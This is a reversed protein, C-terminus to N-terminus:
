KFWKTIHDKAYLYYFALSIWPFLIILLICIVKGAVSIRKKLIDIIALLGLIEGILIIISYLDM